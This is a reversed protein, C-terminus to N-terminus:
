HRPPLIRGSVQECDAIPIEDRLWEEAASLGPAALRIFLPGWPDGRNRGLLMLDREKSRMEGLKEFKETALWGQRRIEQSFGPHGGIMVEITSNGLRLTAVDFDPGPSEISVSASLPLDACVGFRESIM